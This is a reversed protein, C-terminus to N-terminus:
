VEMVAPILPPDLKWPINQLMILRVLLFLIFAAHFPQSCEWMVTLVCGHGEWIREKTDVLPMGAYFHTFHSLMRGVCLLFYILYIWHTVDGQKLRRRELGKVCRKESEGGWQEQTAMTFCDNRTTCTPALSTDESYMRCLCPLVFKMDRLPNWYLM